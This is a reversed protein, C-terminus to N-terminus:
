CKTKELSKESLSTQVFLWVTQCIEIGEVCVCEEQMWNLILRWCIEKRKKEKPVNWAFAPFVKWCLKPVDYIMMVQQGQTQNM